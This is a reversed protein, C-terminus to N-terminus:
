LPAFIEVGFFSSSVGCTIVLTGNDKKVIEGKIFFGCHGKRRGREERRRRGELRGEEEEM